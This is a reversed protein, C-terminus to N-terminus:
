PPTAPAEPKDATKYENCEPTDKIGDGDFDGGTGPITVMCNIAGENGEQVIGISTLAKKVIGGTMFSYIALVLLALVLGIIIWITQSDGKKDM